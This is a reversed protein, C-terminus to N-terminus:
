SLLLALIIVVELLSYGRMIKNKNMNECTYAGLLQKKDPSYVFVKEDEILDFRDFILGLGRADPSWLGIRWIQLQNDTQYIGSNDTGLSVPLIKGFRLNKKGTILREQEEISILSDRNVGPLKIFPVNKYDIGAALGPFSIQGYSPSFLLFLPIIISVYISKHFNMHIKQLLM